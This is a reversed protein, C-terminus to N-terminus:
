FRFGATAVAGVDNENGVAALDLHAGFVSLGLGLSYVDLTDVGGTDALNRQWGLRLQLAKFVNLETGLALMRTKQEFYVARNETLDIDAAFTFGGGGYAVGARYQPELTIVNNNVTRYDASVLHRGVIGARWGRADGYLMGADLNFHSDDTQNGANDTLTPDNRILEQYDNTKVRMYKPTLGWAFRQRESGAGAAFSYGIESVQIGVFRVYSDNYTVNDVGKIVTASNRTYGNLSLAHGFREGSLSLALGGHADALVAKGNASTLAADAAAADAAAYASQFAEIDDVLGSPDAVRVGAVPFLLSVRDGSKQSALMAPNFFAANALNGAAVGANGMGASRADFSGFPAAHAELGCLGAVVGLGIFFKQRM